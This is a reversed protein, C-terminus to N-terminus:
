ASVEVAAWTFPWEYEVGLQECFWKGWAYTQRLIPESRRGLDTLAYEVKLSGETYARRRLVGMRELDRLEAALVQRSVPSLLHQLEGFRKPGSFLHYWIWMKWRSGLDVLWASYDLDVRGCFWEGWAVFQRLMPESQQGLPTLSYEVKPPLEVYVQRQVVGLQELERLQLTLMQRSAEPLLRRLEGFRKTGSLLHYWILVKLKGGVGAGGLPCVTSKKARAM